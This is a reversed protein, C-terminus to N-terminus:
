TGSVGLIKRLEARYGAAAEEIAELRPLVEERCLEARSPYYEEFQPKGDDLAVFKRRTSTFIHVDPDIEWPADLTGVRLYAAHSGQGCYYNWLVTHCVPCQAVTLGIKSPSPITILDPKTPPLKKGTGGEEDAAAATPVPPVHGAGTLRAFAPM